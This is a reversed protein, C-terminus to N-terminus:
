TGGRMNTVHANVDIMQSRNLKFVVKSTFLSQIAEKHLFFWQEFSHGVALIVTM